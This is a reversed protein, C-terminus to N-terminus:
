YIENSDFVTPASPIGKDNFPIDPFTPRETMAKIVDPLIGALWSQVSSDYPQEVGDVTYKWVLNGDPSGTVELKRTSGGITEEVTVKGKDGLSKVNTNDDTFAVAGETSVQIRSTGDPTDRSMTYTFTTGESFDEPNSMDPLYPLDPLFPHEISPVGNDNWQFGALADALWKQAEADFPQEVGNLTYTRKLDGNALAEVILKRTDVGAKEEITFSGGESISEIDTHDDNLKVIGQISVQIQQEDGSPVTNPTPSPKSVSDPINSVPAVAANQTTNRPSADLVSLGPTSCGVLLPLVVAAVVLGRHLRAPEPENLLRSVRRVLNSEGNTMAPVPLSQPADKVWAAVEVLCRALSLGGTHKVAWDDCLYEALGRAKSIGFRNLPQFFFLNQLAAFIGHWAPDRRVLHALEHALMARQQDLDLVLVAREPICIESHGLAVPSSITRSVTLRISRNIGAADCLQALLGAIPGELIPVREGLYFALRWRSAAYKIVFVVVLSLWLLSLLLIWRAQVFSGVQQPFISDSTSTDTTIPASNIDAGSSYTDSLPQRNGASSSPSTTVVDQGVTPSYAALELQGAFLGGGTAVSFTSTVISGILATKWLMEKLAASQRSGVRCVLWVLGLLVTSHIAYTLLWSVLTPAIMDASFSPSNAM